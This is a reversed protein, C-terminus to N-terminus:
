AKKRFMFILDTSDPTLPAGDYTGRSSEVEMGAGAACATLDEVTWHQLISEEKTERILGPAAEFYTISLRTQDGEPLFTKVAVVQRGDANEQEVRIRSKKMAPKDYNLTQTILLGGPLLVNVVGDFFQQLGEKDPLLCASNGLCLALGYPGGEPHRM